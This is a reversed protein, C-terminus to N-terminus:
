ADHGAKAMANIAADYLRAPILGQNFADLVASMPGDNRAWDDWWEMDPRPVQRVVPFASAAAIFEDVKLLRDSYARAADGISEYAMPATTM